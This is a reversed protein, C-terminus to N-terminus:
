AICLADNIIISVGEQKMDRKVQLALAKFFLIDKITVKKLNITIVTIDEIIVTDLDESYWSGKTKYYITNSNNYQNKIISNYKIVYKKNNINNNVDVTSPILISITNNIDNVKIYEDKEYNSYIADKFRTAGGYKKAGEELSDVQKKGSLFFNFNFLNSNIKM